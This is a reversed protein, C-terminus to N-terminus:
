QTPSPPPPPPVSGAWFFNATALRSRHLERIKYVQNFCLNTLLSSGNNLYAHQVIIKQLQRAEFEFFINYKKIFVPRWYCFVAFALLSFNLNWTWNGVVTLSSVSYPLTHMCNKLRSCISHRNHSYVEGQPLQLVYFIRTTRWNSIYM